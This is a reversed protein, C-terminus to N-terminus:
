RGAGHLHAGAQSSAAAAARSREQWEDGREESAKRGTDDVHSCSLLHTGTCACRAFVAPWRSGSQM